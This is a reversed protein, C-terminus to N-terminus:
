ELDIIDLLDSIKRGEYDQYANNFDYLISGIGYNQAGKVDNELDDGIMLLENKDKNLSNIIADFYETSPKLFGLDQYCFIDKFYSDLNVRKLAKVIDGKASDRANTAIFCDTQQSLKSLLKEANPMAEVRTWKHMKGSENPFDRMITNGWDFLFIKNTMSFSMKESAGGHTFHM